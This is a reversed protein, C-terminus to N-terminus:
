EATAERVIRELLDRSAGAVTPPIGLENLMDAAAAMEASRRVAHKYTGNVLRDVTSENAKTLEAVINERLWAECGAARAAELAEVVASSLGKFFVSRLLKRSAALGPPGELVEVTAGLPELFAAVRPADPGSAMMPVRLGLGPVPAMIAIDTCSRGHEGAVRQLEQKVGPSATNMDAWLADPALAGIGARLADIAAASSNVSLVLDAGSVADAEGGTDLIGDSAPVAPDYGRVTAGAIALDHALAGGAEGLGLVAITPREDRLEDRM